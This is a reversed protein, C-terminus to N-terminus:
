QKDWFVRDTLPHQAPANKNLSTESDPYPLIRPIESTTPNVTVKLIAPYGTRRWDSWPQLVVGMNGVYKEEIIQQLKQADTGALTGAPTALYATIAATPVGAASMSATIGAAYFTQASGVAPNALAAEARIFNSEAANLMRGPATGTYDWGGLSNISGDVNPIAPKTTDGRFYIHSRSYKISLADGQTAGKFTAVATNYTFPFPTFFRFRRPDTKSNMLNVVTANPFLYDVRKREFQDFANQNTTAFAQEFNDANSDIFLAGSAVLAAIKDTSGAAGLKTQNIYMRLKLTNAARIWKTKGAAGGVAYITSATPSKGAANLDKIGDDLLAIMAPYIATGDDFKPSTNKTLQFAESYPAKGWADVILQYHYAILIKAVGSYEPFTTGSKQVIINLNELSTNYMSSWVNNMDSGSIKYREYDQTQNAGAGQGSFQQVILASYRFLDSGAGFATNVTAGTLLPDVSVEKPSNPDTNVDLYKDCSSVALLVGISFAYQFIKKM